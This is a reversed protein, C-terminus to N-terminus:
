VMIVGNRDIVTDYSDNCDVHTSMTLTVGNRDIVTDYSDNCDVHTSM